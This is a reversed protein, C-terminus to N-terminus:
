SRLRECLAVFGWSAAFFGLAIALAMFDMCPRFADCTGHPVRDSITRRCARHSSRM